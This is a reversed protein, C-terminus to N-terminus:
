KTQEIYSNTARNNSDLEIWLYKIYEPDINWEYKERILYKLKRSESLEPEGLLEIVEKQTLGILTDSSVLDNVMLERQDDLQWDVGKEKWKDSNFRKNTKCSVLFYLAFILYRM